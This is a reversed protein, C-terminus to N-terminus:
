HSIATQARSRKSLDVVAPLRSFVEDPQAILEQLVNQFDAAMHEITERKFLDSCYEFYSTGQVFAGVELALDFKSTGNDLVEVPSATIGNLGLRPYPTQPVRFNVQFLPTRSPDRPPQVADVVMHLPLDSHTIAGFLAVDVKRILERFSMGENFKVRLVVTNVFFGILEEIGRCRPTVPTGLSIDNLGTYCHLLVIFASCLSRYSTTGGQQFFEAALNFLEPSFSFCFKAGRMTHIAPRPYDLPLDVPPAGSLQRKWYANLAHLREDSLSRRQWAAFDFYDVRLEPLDSSKGTVEANYFESLDRFLLEVSGGEFVIHHVVCLLFYEEDNVRLLLGRLMPDRALNFPRAADQHILRTAESERSDSPHNRLDIQKLEIARKKPVLPVPRGGAALFAARLVEHRQVVSHLARHLAGADLPGRLRLLLPTNYVANGPALQDLYWLREQGFSLVRPQEAPRREVTLGHKM